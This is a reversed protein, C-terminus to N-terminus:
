KGGEVIAAAKTYFGSLVEPDDTDKGAKEALEITTAHIREGLTKGEGKPKPSNTTGMTEGLEVVVTNYGDLFIQFENTEEEGLTVTVGPDFKAAMHLFKPKDAPAIRGEGLLTTYASEIRDTVRGETLTKVQGELTAIKSKSEGLETVTADQAEAKETLEAITANAAELDTELQKLKDDMINDGSIIEVDETSAGGDDTSVAAGDTTPEAMIRIYETDDESLLASLPVLDKVAPINSGLLALRRLVPRGMLDERTQAPAGSIKAADPWVEVSRNDVIGTKLADYVEQSKANFRALLKNGEVRLGELTGVAPSVPLEATSEHSLGVPPKFGTDEIFENTTTAISDLTEATVNWEDGGSAPNFKGVSLIDIEIPKM